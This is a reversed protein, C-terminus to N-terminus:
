QNFDEPFEQTTVDQRGHLVRVVVLADDIIRFYFCRERYPFARLGPSIWDRPVGTVGAAALSFLKKTLDDIFAKAAKPNDSKLYRYMEALDAKATDTLVLRM